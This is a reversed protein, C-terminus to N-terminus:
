SILLLIAVMCPLVMGSGDGGAEAAGLVGVEWAWGLVGWVGWCGRELWGCVGLEVPTM